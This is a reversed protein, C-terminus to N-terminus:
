PKRRFASRFVDEFQPTMGERPVLPELFYGVPDRSGSEFFAGTSFNRKFNSYVQMAMPFPSQADPSLFSYIETVLCREGQVEDLCQILTKEDIAVSTQDYGTQSIISDLAKVIRGSPNLFDTRPMPLSILSGVSVYFEHQRGKDCMNKFEIVNASIVSAFRSLVLKIEGFDDINMGFHLPIMQNEPEIIVIEGSDGVESRYITALLDRFPQAMVGLVIVNSTM